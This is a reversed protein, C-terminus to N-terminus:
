DYMLRSLPTLTMGLFFFQAWFQIIGLFYFNVTVRDLFVSAVSATCVNSAASHKTAETCPKIYSPYNSCDPQEGPHRPSRDCFKQPGYHSYQPAVMMTLAYNIALTLLTLMVTTVLMAQPSTRGKRIDFLRLWLFRIGITAIGVVSGFFFYMTILLFIIYDIPFIKSSAVLAKNVPNFVKTHALIYGCRHGCVSNIIKDIGTLLISVWLVITVLLM